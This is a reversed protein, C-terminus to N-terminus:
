LSDMIATLVMSVCKEPQQKLQDPSFRFVLWRLSAAINLKERDTDDAHRGGGPAWQGGDVEVAIRYNPWAWDFRHKRKINKDFNYEPTPREIEKSGFLNWYYAFMQAKDESM